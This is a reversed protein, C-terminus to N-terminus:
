EIGCMKVIFQRLSSTYESLIDDTTGEAYEKMIENIQSETLAINPKVVRIIGTSQVVNSNDLYREKFMLNHEDIYFAYDDCGYSRLVGQWDTSKIVNHNFCIGQETETRMIILVDIPGNGLNTCLDDYEMQIISSFHSIRKDVDTLQSGYADADLIANIGDETYFGPTAFIVRNDPVNLDSDNYHIIEHRQVDTNGFVNTTATYEQNSM